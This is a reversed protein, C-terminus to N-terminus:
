NHDSQLTNPTPDQGSNRMDTDIENQSAISYTTTSNLYTTLRQAQAQQRDYEQDFSQFNAFEEQDLYAIHCHCRACLVEAFWLGQPEPFPRVLKGHTKHQRIRRNLLRREKRNIYEV